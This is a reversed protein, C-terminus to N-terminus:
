SSPSRGGAPVAPTVTGPLAEAMAIDEASAAAVLAGRWGHGRAAAAVREGPVLLASDRLQPLRDDPLAALLAALSEASTVTVVVRGTTCAHELAALTAPDPVAAVRRYLDGTEVAAGRRELSERLLARGGEGKLILIRQGAVATFPALALLGESDSTTSPVAHVAIRHEALARATGRGVAAIRTRMPRPLQRLSSEVANASTYITWHFRDPALRDRAAADLEIPEIELAPLLLPTGGAVSVLAAFRAAQARPRTVVVTVGALPQTV